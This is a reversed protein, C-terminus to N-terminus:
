LTFRKRGDGPSENRADGPSSPRVKEQDRVSKSNVSNVRVPTDDVVDVADVANEPTAEALTLRLVRRPAGQQDAIRRWGQHVNLRSSREDVRLVLKSLEAPRDPLGSIKRGLLVQHLDTASGEWQGGIDELLGRLEGALLDIPDPAGLETYVRRAHAKFYTLLQEAAEVDGHEVREETVRGTACRCMALVLSLRALYGRLKSWVGELRSPFGPELVEAGLSDVTAAFLDRARRTLKLPRPNPDGHDDTALRLDALKEYLATYEKEADESVEDDTFRVHRPAPYCYLFRDMLGDEAGAGLESLMSPQIGGFLSVFPKAVIIPEGQRSKRDVVVEDGSWFSLWHQRDSGKGGKYQDMGRVWGTLEDKHVLLGRPNEELISVLAEVTTDSAVCRSMSPAGPEEPAPEGAKQANRREVEWERMERKWEEKEEAYAGGLDRQRTFAPRRAVKAAPTKMAGPSAVVAVFLAAWERWGGKVEVIRSTGVASSLVALMPLAVLEPACGLAVTAEEVLRRCPAPMAEVPFATANPLAPTYSHTVAEYSPADPDSQHENRSPERSDKGPKYFETTGEIARSITLGRYDERNWKERNLGSRVVLSAIREQDDGVWFALMSCLALDAESDSAYDSRDGAWLRAFRDGSRSSMARRLVEADTLVESAAAGNMVPAKTPAHQEEPPFLRAHLAEIEEQRDEVRHSTGPLRRRTITFFRGRDYMEVRGKRNGGPPLKSRVIVHLGTGSPSIETYSDLEDLVKTAWPEIEGTEPDVCSDLDVGCFPDSTAFVFGIGDFDKEAAREAEALTGWTAPDDSRARTGSRPSYPVKTPKANQGRAELRWCVWQELDKM